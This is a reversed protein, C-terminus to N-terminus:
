FTVNRGVERGNIDSKNSEIFDGGDMCSATSLGRQGCLPSEASSFCSFSQNIADNEHFLSLWHAHEEDSIMCQLCFISDTSHITAIIQM